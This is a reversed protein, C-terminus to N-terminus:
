GASAALSPLPPLPLDKTLKETHGKVWGQKGNLYAWKKEVLYFCEELWDKLRRQLGVARVIGLNKTLKDKVDVTPSILDLDIDLYGDVLKMIARFRLLESEVKLEFDVRHGDASRSWRKIAM